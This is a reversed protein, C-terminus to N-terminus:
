MACSAVDHQGADLAGGHGNSVLVPASSWRTVAVTVSGVTLRRLGTRGHTTMAILANGAWGVITKAPDAGHLVEWQAGVPEALRHVYSSESQPAYGARSADNPSISTVIWLDVGLRRAWAAAEDIVRESLPSGDCPVVVREVDGLRVTSHPGCLLVPNQADRTVREAASGVYGSHLLPSNSTAMVTFVNPSAAIEAIARPAHPDVIVTRSATDGPINHAAAVTALYDDRRAVLHQDEVASFLRIPAGLLRGADVATPLAREADPQSNLPCVVTLADM